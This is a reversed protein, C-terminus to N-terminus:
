EMRQNIDPGLHLLVLSLSKINYKHPYWMNKWKCEKLHQARYSNLLNTNIIVMAPKESQQSAPAPLGTSAACNAGTSPFLEEYWETATEVLSLPFHIFELPFWLWKEKTLSHHSQSSHFLSLLSSLFSINAFLERRPSLCMFWNVNLIVFNCRSHHHLTNVWSALQLQSCFM